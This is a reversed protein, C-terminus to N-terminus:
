RHNFLHNLLPHLLQFVTDLGGGNGLLSGLRCHLAMSLPFFTLHSSLSRQRALVDEQRCYGGYIVVGKKEPFVQGSYVKYKFVM